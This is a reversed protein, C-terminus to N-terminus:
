SASDDGTNTGNEEDLVDQLFQQANKLTTENKSVPKTQTFELILKAAQLKTRIDGPLEMVGIAATMAKEAKDNDPVWIKKEAMAKMVKPVYVTEVHEKIKLFDKYRIGDPAGKIRGANCRGAEVARRRGEQMKARHEPTIVRNPQAKYPARKRPKPSTKRPSRSYDRPGHPKYIPNRRPDDQPLLETPDNM